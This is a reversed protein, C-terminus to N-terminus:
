RRIIAKGKHRHVTQQGGLANVQEAIPDNHHMADLHKEFFEEEM